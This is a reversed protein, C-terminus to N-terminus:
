NYYYAVIQVEDKDSGIYIRSEGTGTTDFVEIRAAFMAVYTGPPLKVYDTGTNRFNDFAGNELEANKYFQGNLALLGAEELCSNQSGSDPDICWPGGNIPIGDADYIVTPGDVDNLRFYIGTQIIRARADQMRKRHNNVVKYASWSLSYNVEIVATKELTFTVGAPDNLTGAGNFGFGNGTQVIVNEPNEADNLYDESDVFVRFKEEVTGLILDGSANAFVRTTSPYGLNNINNTSNLGQIRINETPGAVHLDQQPNTTNIGVQANMGSLIFLLSLSLIRKM